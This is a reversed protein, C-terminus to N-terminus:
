EDEPSGILPSGMDINTESSAPSNDPTGHSASLMGIAPSPVGSDDIRMEPSIGRNNSDPSSNDVKDSNYGSEMGKTGEEVNDEVDADSESDSKDMDVDGSPAPCPGITVNLNKYSKQKKNKKREARKEKKIQHKSPKNDDIEEAKRRLVPPLQKETIPLSLDLFFEDRHSTHQCEQCQLTSILVGRFVQETPLLLESAQQGYFKVIKKKEGEVTNPDTKTNLGLKELIVSQYRKLDEERVAELLHRLLEHADHQDGGGFQPMRNVLKSLLQRPVYAETRGNQIETITESLTATLIRWKELCGTLPEVVPSDNDQPNIKGGPLQFFQGPESTEQLLELLYPTQALCQVVSNFFCTNGLNTLGRPRPLSSATFNFTTSPFSVSSSVPVLDM